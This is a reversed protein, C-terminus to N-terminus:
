GTKICKNCRNLLSEFAHKLENQPIAELARTTATKIISIDNFFGGKLKLKSFLSFDSSSLDRSHPPHNLVCDLWFNVFLSRPTVRHMITCCLGLRQIVINPNIHRIRAMLRKLVEFYYSDTITQVTPVLERHIIGKSDFFTILMATILWGERNDDKLRKRGKLFRKHWLFVNARSLSM